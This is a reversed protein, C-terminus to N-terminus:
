RHGEEEEEEEDSLDDKGACLADRGSLIPPPPPTPPKQPAVHSIKMILDDTVIQTPVVKEGGKVSGLPEEKEPKLSSKKKHREKDNLRMMRKSHSSKKVQFVEGEEETEFSLLSQTPKISASTKSSSSKIKIKHEKPPPPVPPTEDAEMRDEDDDHETFVRRQIQQKKPKRFM